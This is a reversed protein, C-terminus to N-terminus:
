FISSERGLLGLILCNTTILSRYLGLSDYNILEGAFGRRYTEHNRFVLHMYQTTSKIKLEPHQGCYTDILTSEGTTINYSYANLREIRCDSGIEFYEFWLVAVQFISLTNVSKLFGNTVYM